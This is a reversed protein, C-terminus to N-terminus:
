VFLVGSVFVDFFFHLQKVGGELFFKARCRSKAAEQAPSNSAGVVGPLELRSGAKQPLFTLNEWPIRLNEKTKERLIGSLELNEQKKAATFFTGCTVNASKPRM